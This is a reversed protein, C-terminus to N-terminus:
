SGSPPNAQTTTAALHCQPRSVVQEGFAHNHCSVVSVLIQANADIDAVAPGVNSPDNVWRDHGLVGRRHGATHQINLGM